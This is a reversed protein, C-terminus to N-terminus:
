QSTALCKRIFHFSFEWFRGSRCSTRSTAYRSGQQAAEGGWIPLSIQVTPMIIDRGSNPAMGEDDGVVTYRFGLGVKPWRQWRTAKKQFASAKAQLSLAQLAPHDALSPMDSTYPAPAQLSLTDPLAIASMGDRHLLSNFHLRLVKEEDALVMLAANVAQIKLDVRLGETNARGHEIYVLVTRALNQLLAEHKKQLQQHERNEYLAYWAKKVRLNLTRKM